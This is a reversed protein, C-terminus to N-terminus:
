ESGTRTAVSVDDFLISPFIGSMTLHSRNELSVIRKMVEYINGAIMADKVHGQIQGNEVYIGPSLGISFDGNQINGSHAGIAGAVIIGRNMSGILESFSKDGKEIHLHELAPAPKFSVTEGGWMSTKYGHGTPRSGTKGAYTLDYYFNAVAGREIIPLRRCPVGEDDFGRAGPTGDNLPDDYITLREDFLREGLKESLPSVKLYINRGSTGSEVRWVLTYLTEPLFLVKMKGGGPTVEKESRNYTELLFRLYAEDAEIFRKGVLERHISSYSGPFLIEAGLFYFSSKLSVDTGHSNILRLTVSKKGASLNVQGKTKPALLECVRRCEEVIRANSIAEISPDYTDLRPVEKTLPLTFPAEVGGKLSDIANQLTEEPRILNKTYAFGLKGGQVLRLSIGSQSKSEVDKLKGDEFRVEDTTEDLSYAEAEGARKKAMELLQEM